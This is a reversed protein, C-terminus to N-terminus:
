KIVAIKTVVSESSNGDKALVLYVGSAVRHGSKNRCNWIVQGGISKTQYILNGKLDTIKVNSEDMLGTITVKDPDEPRVPNPYAYVDSYDDKGITAEGQYSILGKDTGIFVEGTLDNIEISYIYNSLLPSNSTNFEHVVEGNDNDLVYIGNDQTGIWKRNGQDVKITTVITNDLFYYPADDEDTLIVRSCRASAYNDSAATKPSTFYVVGKNTGVWVYGNRDEALCTYSNPSFNNGQTDTLSEFIYFPPNDLSESDGIVVLRAESAPRPVALWKDNGSTILMEKLTKLGRLSSNFISHWNGEKDLVKIGNTVETNNMWLNGQRDYNLGDIRCYASNGTIATELPSNDINYLHMAEGNVFHVLGDGFCSAYIEEDGSATESVVISTYNNIYKNFKDYVLQRNLTSWKDFDYIMIHARYGLAQGDGLNIGGPIIYLKNNQYVIRYPSNYFPGDLVIYSTVAEFSNKDKRRVCRLGSTGEALWFRDTQYTSVDNLTVNNLQDFTNPDSFLYLQTNCIAALKEATTKITHVNGHNMMRVASGDAERYVGNNKILFILQGSFAALQNVPVSLGSVAYASWSNKDLLNDSLDAQIIGSPYLDTRTTVAYIKGNLIASSTINLGLNYTETIENRNMNVVVIGTAMNLYAFENYLMVSNVTKDSLNTTTSLYPINRASGNKFIDINSNGYVILLSETKKNYNIFSITNDNLGNGKYWTKISNDEKGYTYLSGEALVFVEAASEEVAQTTYYSLYTKWGATNWQSAHLGASALLFCCISLIYKM